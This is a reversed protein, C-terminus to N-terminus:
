NQQSEPADTYASDEPAAQIVEQIGKNETDLPADVGILPSVPTVADTDDAQPNFQSFQTSSVHSKGQPPFEKLMERSFGGFPKDM